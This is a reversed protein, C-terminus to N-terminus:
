AATFCSVLITPYALHLVTSFNLCHEVDPLCWLLPSSLLPFKGRAAGTVICTMGQLKGSRKRSVLEQTDGKTPALGDVVPSVITGIGDIECEM